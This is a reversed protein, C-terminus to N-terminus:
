DILGSGLKLKGVGFQREVSLLAAEFQHYARRRTEDNGQKRAVIANLRSQKLAQIAKESETIVGLAPSGVVPAAGSPSEAMEIPRAWTWLWLAIMLGFIVVGSYILSRADLLLGAATLM